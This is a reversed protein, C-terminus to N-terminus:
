DFFGLWLSGLGDWLFDTLLGARPVTKEVTIRITVQEVFGDVAQSVIPTLAGRSYFLREGISGFYTQQMLTEAFQGNAYDHLMEVRVFHTGGTASQLDITKLWACVVFSSCQNPLQAQIDFTMYTTDEYVYSDGIIPYYHGGLNGGNLTVSTFAAKKAALIDTQLGALMSASLTDGMAMPLGLYMPTIPRNFANPTIIAASISGDPDRYTNFSVSVCGALKYQVGSIPCPLPDFNATELQGTFAAGAGNRQMEFTVLLYGACAHNKRMLAGIAEDVVTYQLTDPSTDYTGLQLDVVHPSAQAPIAGSVNNKYWTWDQFVDLLEITQTTSGNFLVVRLRQSKHGIGNSFTTITRYEDASLFRWTIDLRARNHNPNLEGCFRNRFVANNHLSFPLGAHIGAAPIHHQTSPQAGTPVISGTNHVTPAYSCWTYGRELEFAVTDGLTWADAIGVTDGCLFERGPLPYTILPRNPPVLPM